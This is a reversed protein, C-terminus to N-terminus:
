VIFRVQSEQDHWAEWGQNGSIACCAELDRMAAKSSERPVEKSGRSRCRALRQRALCLRV